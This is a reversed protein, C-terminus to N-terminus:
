RFKPSKQWVKLSAIAAQLQRYNKPSNQEISNEYLVLFRSLNGRPEDWSGWVDGGATEVFVTLLDLRQAGLSEDATLWREVPGWLAGPDLDSAIASSLKQDAAIASRLASWTAATTRAAHFVASALMRQLGDLGLNYHLYAMGSSLRTGRLAHGDPLSLLSEVREYRQLLFVGETLVGQVLVEPSSVQAALAASMGSASTLQQLGLLAALSTWRQRGNGTTDVVGLVRRNDYSWDDFEDPLRSM